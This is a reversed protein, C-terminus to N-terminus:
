GIKFKRRIAMVGLYILIASLITQLTAILRVGINEISHTEGLVSDLWAEVADNFVGLPFAQHLSYAMGQVVSDWDIQGTWSEGGLYAYTISMTAWLIMLWFFPRGISLGYDAFCGYADSAVRELRGLDSTKRRAIIEARHWFHEMPGDGREQALNRLNRCGTEIRSALTSLESRDFDQPELESLFADNWRGHYTSAFGINAEFTGGDFLQIPPTASSSFTVLERFRSGTTCASSVLGKPWEIDRFVVRDDFDCDVFTLYKLINSRTISFHGHFDTSDFSAGNPLEVGSITVQKAVQCNKISLSGITTNSVRLESIKTDSIKLHEAIRSQKIKLNVPQVEAARICVSGFVYVSTFDFSLPMGTTCRSELDGDIYCYELSINHNNDFFNVGNEFYCFEYSLVKKMNVSYDDSYFTFGSIKKYQFNSNYKSISELLQIRIQSFNDEDSIYISRWHTPVFLIHFLKEDGCKILVGMEILMDDSADESLSRIFAQLNPFRAPEPAQKAALGDWSFDEALWSKHWANCLSEKELSRM